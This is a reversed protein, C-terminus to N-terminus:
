AAEEWRRIWNWLRTQHRRWLAISWLILGGSVLLGLGTAALGGVAQFYIMLLRIGAMMMLANFLPRNEALGAQVGGLLLIMLSFPAGLLDFHVGALILSALGAWGALMALTLRRGPATFEPHLLTTGGAAIMSGLFLGLAAQSPFRQSFMAWSTWHDGVALDAAFLVPVGSVAMWLFFADRFARARPLRQLGAAAVGCLLPVSLMMLLLEREQSFFGLNEVIWALSATLLTGTWFFPIFGRRSLTAAPFTLGSWLLLAERWTGGSHYIQGILGIMGMVGFLFLSLLAERWLSAPHRDQRQFGWGLGALLLFGGALKAEDSLDAWHSAVLSILGMGMTSTGLAIFGQLLWGGGPKGREHALIAAAQVDSLLGAATWERLRRDLGTM